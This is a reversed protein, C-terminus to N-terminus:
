ERRGVGGNRIIGDDGSAHVIADLAIVRLDEVLAAFQEDRVLLAHERLTLALVAVQEWQGEMLVVNILEDAVPDAEVCVVAVITGVCESEGDM